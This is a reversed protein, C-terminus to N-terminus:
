QDKSAPSGKKTKRNRMWRVLLWLVALPILVFPSFTVVYIGFDVLVQFVSVFARLAKSITVLPSWQAKEILSRPAEKPRIEIHITAMATMRELYQKRGKLSEIQARINTLERHVALIDEAKGRSERVEVLLALLETEAAELNRLRAQLDVYEETVDQGSVSETEVRIAMDRLLDLVEDLTPAPVRLTVRAYAQDDQLWRNSDATYGEYDRAIDRLKRLTDDTDEVVVTLNATRIIMQESAAGLTSAAEDRAGPAAAPMPAGVPMERAVAVEREVIVTEVVQPRSLGSRAACGVSLSLISLLAVIMVWRNQKM